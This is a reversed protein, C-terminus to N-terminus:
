IPVAQYTPTLLLAMADRMTPLQNVHRHPCERSKVGHHLCTHTIPNERILMAVHTPPRKIGEDLNVAKYFSTDGRNRAKCVPRAFNSSVKLVALVISSTIRQWCHVEESSPGQPSAPESMSM